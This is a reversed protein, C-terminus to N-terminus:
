ELECYIEYGTVYLKTDWNVMEFLRSKSNPVDIQEGQEDSINKVLYMNLIYLGALTNLVNKMNAKKFEANRNHKVDNYAKWWEPSKYPTISWNMFPQLEQQHVKVKQNAIKQFFTDGLIIPTYDREMNEANARGLQACISKLIDETASSISQYQKVFEISYTMSNGINCAATGSYLANDGLDLEIYRMVGFFDEELVRYYEWHQQLYELRTM